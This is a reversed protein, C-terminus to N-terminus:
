SLSLPFLCSLLWLVFSRDAGHWKWGREDLM